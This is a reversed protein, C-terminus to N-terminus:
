IVGHFKLEYSPHDLGTPEYFEDGIYTFGLEKLLKQSRVNQPNHGAFLKEAGLVAFAYRIVAAAAESAYGQGWFEPLLHFGVEYEKEKHPRLGCCGIFKSVTAEFIPWYEVHYM